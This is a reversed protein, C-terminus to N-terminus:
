EDNDFSEIELILQYVFVKRENDQDTDNYYQDLSEKYLAIADIFQDYSYGNEFEQCEKLKEYICRLLDILIDLSKANPLLAILDNIIEESLDSPDQMAYQLVNLAQIIVTLQMSFYVPMQGLITDRPAKLHDWIEHKLAIVNLVTKLIEYNDSSFFEFLKSIHAEELDLYQMISIAAKVNSVNVPDDEDYNNIVGMIYDLLTEKDYELFGMHLLKYISNIVWSKDEITEDNLILACSNYFYIKAEKTLNEAKMKQLITCILRGILNSRVGFLSRGIKLSQEDSIDDAKDIINTLITILKDQIEPTVPNSESVPIINTIADTLSFNVDKPSIGIEKGSIIELISIFVVRTEFSQSRLQSLFLSFKDVFPPIYKNPEEKIIEFIENGIEFIQEDDGCSSFQEILGFLKKRIPRSEYFFDNQFNM